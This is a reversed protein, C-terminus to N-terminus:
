KRYKVFCRCNVREEVPLGVDGPYLAKSTKGTQKNILIFDEEVKPRQRLLSNSNHSQRVKSDRQNIWQKVDYGRSQADLQKVLETQAHVETAIIREVRASANSYKSRMKDNREEFTLPKGDSTSFRRLDRIMSRSLDSTILTNMKKIDTDFTKVIKNLAKDNAKYLIALNNFVFKERKTLDDEGRGTLFVMTAKDIVKALDKPRKVDLKRLIRIGVSLKEKDKLRLRDNEIVLGMSSLAYSNYINPLFKKIDFRNNKIITLIDQRTLKDTRDLLRLAEKQITNITSSYGRKIRISGQNEMAENLNDLLRNKTQQTAIEMMEMM